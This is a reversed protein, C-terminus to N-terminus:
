AANVLTVGDENTAILVSPQQLLTRIYERCLRVRHELDSIYKEDYTVPFSKFRFGDPIDDYTMKARVEDYLEMDVENMGARYSANRAERDILEEPANILCYNISAKRKGTLNMYIQAQAYYDKSPLDADFLPFTFADWSNKIDAVVDPLILDPTGTMYENEFFAENKVAFVGNIKCYLDIAAPECQNGKETYKNSFERRRGYIKEKVWQECYTKAGESLEPPASKKAILRDLESQQKETRKAKAELEKITALQKETIQVLAGMIQSGASGRIKFLNANIM